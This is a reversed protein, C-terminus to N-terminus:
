AAIAVAEVASASRRWFRLALTGAIAQVGVLLAVCGPWGFHDWLLGPVVAGVSGGLYYFTVYLGAATSRAHTAATGVYGSSASQAVFVGSSCFALGVIVLWLPTALTLLVGIAALCLALVVAHRHGVRALLRGSLPTVILGLLYVFFIEGQAQPGLRYPAAALHYTIYTFLGVLSFLVNFGVAYAAVLQRNRLHAAIDAIPNHARHVSHSRITSPLWRAVLVSGALTLAGMVIFSLKWGAHEALVGTLTRGIFGGFVTGTVYYSIVKASRASSWEEVIYAMASTIIGPMFLGTVFRWFLLAAFTSTLGSLITPIALGFLSTVLVKRRGFRDSIIGAFPAALAVGITTASITWGAHAASIHFIQRLLPLVPQPAYLDLFACIGALALAVVRTRDDVRSASSTLPATWGAGVIETSPDKTERAIDM